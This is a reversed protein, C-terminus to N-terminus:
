SPFARALRERLTAPTTAGVYTSGHEVMLLLRSRTVDEALAALLLLRTSWWYAGDRLDIQLTALSDATALSQQMSILTSDAMPGGYTLAEAFGTKLHLSLRQM